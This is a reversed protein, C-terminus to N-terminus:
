AHVAEGPQQHPSPAAALRKIHRIPSICRGRDVVLMAWASAAARSACIERLLGAQKDHDNEVLTVVLRHFDGAKFTKFPLNDIFDTRQITV